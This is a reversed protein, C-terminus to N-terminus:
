VELLRLIRSLQHPLKALQLGIFDASKSAHQEAALLGTPFRGAPHLGAGSWM